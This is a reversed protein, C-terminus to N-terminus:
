GIKGIVEMAQRRDVEAYIETTDMGQHGLIIRAVEIGFQKRVETGANHRLQHPHFHHSRRWAKVAATQQATLGARWARASQRKGDGLVPPSLHEPLPFAKECARTVARRYSDV